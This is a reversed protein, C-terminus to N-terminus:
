RWVTRTRPTLTVLREDTVTWIPLSRRVNLSPSPTIKGLFAPAWRESVM